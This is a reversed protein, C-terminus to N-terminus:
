IGIMTKLTDEDIISVGLSQAKTLKSGADSGALVYDTKKSVSSSVRGGYKIILDAAEERRMTPLTGTLVFTKGGLVDSEKVAKHVMVVGAEKLRNILLRTQPHAFYNVVCEATIGGFDDISSIDHESVGFLLEIDGFKSALLSAAKEGVNRIGLAYILKALGAKKSENIASILKEASKEGFKPLDKIDDATLSYLDAVDFIIEMGVLQRVVAEGMGTIGMAAKSAFHIINRERQAPCLANTCRVAAEDDKFVPEGCSPCVQPMMYEPTNDPRKSVDVKFIEPIIDGAKHVLVTDGIRIDKSRIYDINHLAARSVVSGALSVPELVATPTLVGTRGVAIDIDILRTFKQEPPFKYAVAWKPTSINDGISQRLALSDIKVVIGDIDYPFTPRGQGIKEIVSIIEEATKATYRPEVTKFGLKGLENLAGSHYEATFGVAGQFNFIFIDLKREAAIRSDLQRLSGAAANRPNAFRAEGNQERRENLHEFVGRPMYVEGRVELYESDSDIHLPVSRVTRLNETVDEGVTGDGRTAGKVFTGYEYILSVSLGDIKAEISFTCDPDINKMKRVFDELEDYSFVDALSDMRYRHTVKEFKDLVAGGVRKTPSDAFAYEPYEAELKVLEAFMADYEHDSITPADLVYYKESNINIQETLYKIRSLIDAM